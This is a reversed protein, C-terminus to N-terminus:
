KIHAKIYNFYIQLNLRVVGFGKSSSTKENERVNANFTHTCKSKASSSVGDINVNGTKVDAYPVYTVYDTSAARFLETNEIGYVRPDTLIAELADETLHACYGYFGLGILNKYVYKVIVKPYSLTLYQIHADLFKNGDITTINSNENHLFVIYDIPVGYSCSYYLFVLFFHLYKM